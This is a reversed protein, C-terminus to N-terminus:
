RIESVAKKLKLRRKKMLMVLLVILIALALLYILWGYNQAAPAAALVPTMAEATEKAPAALGGFQAAGKM